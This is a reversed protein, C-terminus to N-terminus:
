TLQFSLASLAKDRRAELDEKSTGGINIIGYRFSSTDQSQESLRSGEKGLVEVRIDPMKGQLTDIEDQTPVRDLKMDEFVRLVFSTAHPFEGAGPTFEPKQGSSLALQIEYTNTGDVKEFLDAFQSSMRSNLEIIKLDDTEPDYSLELNFMTNDLGSGKATMEALKTMRAQLAKPARSPYVFSEFSQTGPYMVSDVIGIVQVKGDKIFGEVTVQDGKIMSEALMANTSVGGVGDSSLQSTRIDEYAKTIKGLDRRADAMAHEFSSKSDIMSALVSLHSKVPKLFFPTAMPPMDGDLPVMHFDPVNEAPVSERQMQRSLFKHQTKFVAEPSPGPLGLRASVASAVFSGLDDSGIVGAINQDQFERVASEILAKTDVQDSDRLMVGHSVVNIGLKKALLDLERKERASPGLVVFTGGGSNRGALTNELKSAM